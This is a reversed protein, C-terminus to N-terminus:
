SSSSVDIEKLRREVYDLYLDFVELSFQDEELERQLLDADDEYGRETKLVEILKTTYGDWSPDDLMARVLLIKAQQYLGEDNLLQAKNTQSIRDAETAYNRLREQVMEVLADNDSSAELERWLGVAEPLRGLGVLSWARNDDVLGSRVGFEVAADLLQLSLENNGGSRLRISAEVLPQELESLASFERGEFEVLSEGAAEALQKLQNSLEAALLRLNDQAQTRLGEEQHVLLENWLGIAESRRGLGVLAATQLRLNDQAQTRLGEEQHVLLENWLGIAESRRGLGVLSWARNDDVLGSRVGFEVAADLLQLSLENNGGSRLRISAEVLPQELESLASFERGEFEVLSEGAAEALQKLQNSLEAALLRLNDQAQTRLGEEQHVLLENWLGIAESRRGLGVLAATQLRLNDQAQTRLGEEQHVLLENWLGIAESRRGLGVLSWARNDDVLGSRVGFEVAADLLQLSLENNGGSRLRISAEVLPQELESLASFERGEFEVLSEGAAEALQKLQNSLEAALLRLNDQAQTRLGEEQHVLLENWLGIAESRRGLGVLAATQLRLNDQAQTRLGEEQHVLLENWLGIAESRRGLGVLSWARNDDVLGSRVGFEVAADLLQLSLENNGGSRLRISAEVLPQELESLASFERGEFEVLSEGAAEALQKLQNSLEAALLRLNDQAQTRLGEEQHVLLENWLGIAESRRGLGVLAATQLRLNDQAQTRLGEEQHVLLENWLGIAESRRGLGVLSWARNDDVLGSRVGFEVAADLLQLSLENNGGSRLRISAEVLPQELESLASFERGEFEVLSEGAAEALQKLQNSLEAALLRLNDQAQTRLGEEQHVLLENWLGIAESRRGLGVLAATQLRLNDQAQTRLGEEQHVLLENWLGIAESRRGLGVLSWARNDDVLGSRVGFEVAADLLQLSLENNGGSRLRISAEVLPQELESLASFERGEFEVLSEGAAEALQKLQNSLEAALLRLNDQAQTRLGEEQHVLLENWLGIAESRRGLGVLAATQLRLNDQAQTRLGEEQHVLLENWLGIAESRRGLGVLSWARNDDVLGSRVGFEVAADLLQLSLENNGGSRLRISAEVLPQELESLASFERGEFEVLSEGAAEALQKLQNSLEAALLRLNDQAQTRLGEEQHVLLENWLGIAESRRGLGVLAWARNDDVLGSRVGFEVAADLLALSRDAQGQARLDIADQLLATM